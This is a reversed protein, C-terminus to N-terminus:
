AEHERGEISSIWVADEEDMAFQEPTCGKLMESLSYEPIRDQHEFQVRGSALVTFSVEQGVELDAQDVVPRPIVLSVSGGHKKLKATIM